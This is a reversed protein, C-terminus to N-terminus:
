RPQYLMKFHRCSVCWRSVDDVVSLANQVDDIAPVSLLKFCRCSVCWKSVYDVLLVTTQVLM